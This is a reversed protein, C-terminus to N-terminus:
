PRLGPGTATNLPKSLFRSGRLAYRWPTDVGKTLGIRTGTAVELGPPAPRLAFPPADIAHGDLAGTIGLAQCLRGPGSCLLAAPAVGRRARMVDLGHLPELARILVASAPLCVLNLCWHLGYSRYVYVNGPPGFMAGNRATRRGGFSHSAPDGPDYAETEVIVGGVGGVLLEVGILARAVDTVQRAFDSKIMEVPFRYFGFSLGPAKGRSGGFGAAKPHM